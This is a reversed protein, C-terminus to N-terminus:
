GCYQVQIEEMERKEKLLKKQRKREKYEEKMQNYLARKKERKLQNKSKKPADEAASEVTPDASIEGPGEKGMENKGDSESKESVAAFEVASPDGVSKGGSFESETNVMEMGECVETDGALADDVAPKGDGMAPRGSDGDGDDSIKPETSLASAEEVEDIVTCEEMVGKDSVEQQKSMIGRKTESTSNVSFSRVTATNTCNVFPRSPSASRDDVEVTYCSLSIKKSGRFQTLVTPAQNFNHWLQTCVLRCRLSLGVM